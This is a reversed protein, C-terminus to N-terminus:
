PMYLRGIVLKDTSLDAEFFHPTRHFRGNINKHSHVAMLLKGQLTHFLMGHGYDPPTVPEKEQIYSPLYLGSQTKEDTSKPKILVRDAVVIINNLKDSVKIKM